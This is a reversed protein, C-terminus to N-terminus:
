KKVMLKIIEMQGDNFENQSGIVVLLGLIGFSIFSDDHLVLWAVFSLLCFMVGIIEFRAFFRKQKEFFEVNKETM